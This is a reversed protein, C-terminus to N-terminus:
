AAAKLADGNAGADAYRAECSAEEATLPRNFRVAIHRGFHDDGRLRVEADAGAPLGDRVATLRGILEDLSGNGSIELYDRIMRSM